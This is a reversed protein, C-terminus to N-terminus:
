KLNSINHETKTDYKINILVKFCQLVINKFLAEFPKESAASKIASQPPNTNHM